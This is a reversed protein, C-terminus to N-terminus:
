FLDVLWRGRVVSSSWSLSFRVTDATQLNVGLGGARTTMIFVDLPSGPANFAEINIQRRIRNTGGDLRTYRYQQPQKTTPKNQKNAHPADLPYTM